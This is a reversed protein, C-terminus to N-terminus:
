TPPVPLHDIKTSGREVHSKSVDGRLEESYNIEEAISGNELEVIRAFIRGATSVKGLHVVDGYIDEVRTMRGVLRVAAVQGMWNKESDLIVGYSKGVDVQEGVIAGKVRSGSGVKVAKAKLGNETEVVGVIDVENRANVREAELKGGVRVEGAELDHNVKTSGGIEIQDQVSLSGDAELQGTAKISKAKLNGHIESKGFIAIDDCEFDGEVLLQGNASIKTGKSGGSLDVKGLVQLDGFELKSRSEFKGGVKIKGSIKGGGIEAQGGVDFDRIAVTGRSEVKGAVTLSEAQLDEVDIRGGVRMQKCIINKAEIRGGVDITEARITGTSKVSHNVDLLKRVTLNGDVRLVGGSGVRMSDCEFDCAIEAGGDFYVGGSISVPNGSRSEIRANRGVKLEGEIRDLKVTASRPVQYDSMKKVEVM